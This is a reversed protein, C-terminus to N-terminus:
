TRDVQAFGFDPLAQSILADNSKVFQGQRWLEAYRREALLVAVAEEDTSCRIDRSGEIHGLSDLYYLQYGEM